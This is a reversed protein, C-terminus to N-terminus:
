VKLVTLNVHLLDCAFSVHARSVCRHIGVSTTFFFSCLEKVISPGCVVFREARLATRM